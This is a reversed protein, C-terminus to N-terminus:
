SSPLASQRRPGPRSRSRYRAALQEKVDQVQTALYLATLTWKDTTQTRKYLPFLRGERALEYVRQRGLDLAAGTESPTLVEEIGMMAYLAQYLLDGLPTKHLDPPVGYHTSLALVFPASASETYTSEPFPTRVGVPSLLLGREPDLRQYVRHIARRVDALPAAQGEGYGYAAVLTLDKWLDSERMQQLAPAQEHSPHEAAFADRVLSDIFDTTHQPTLVMIQEEEDRVLCPISYCTLEEGTL